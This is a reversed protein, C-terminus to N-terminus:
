LIKFGGSALCFKAFKEVNSEEFRYNAEFPSKTGIGNCGNCWGHTRNVFSATLSDLEKEPMKNSVGIEDTRIGTGDCIDCHERPLSSVYHYYGEKYKTVDGNKLDQLLALGLKTANEDDIIYGSNDHGREPEEGLCEPYCDVCYTYLIRWWWVNNRFYEGQENLPELGYIDMGM